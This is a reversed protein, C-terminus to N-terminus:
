EDTTNIDLMRLAQRKSHIYYTIGGDEFVSQNDTLGLFAALKDSDLSCLTEPVEVSIPDEEPLPGTPDVGCTAPNVDIDQQDRLLSNIWIKRPSWNWETQLPHLNWANAFDQLSRRIRPLYICHLVFLDLDNDPDLIGLAEMEYFLEHYTSCLVNESGKDSQVQIPVGYEETAQRFDQYVTSAQNNTNCTLFVITRSYGDIGGHM